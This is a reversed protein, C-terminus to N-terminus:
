TQWSGRGRSDVLVEGKEIDPVQSVQLGEPRDSYEVTLFNIVELRNSRCVTEAWIVDHYAHKLIFQRSKRRLQAKRSRKGRPHPM